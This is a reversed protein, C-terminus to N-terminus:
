REKGELYTKYSSIKMKNDVCVVYEMKGNGEDSGFAVPVACVCFGLLFCMYNSPNVYNGMWNRTAIGIGFTFFCFNRCFANTLRFFCQNQKIKYIMENVEESSEMEQDATYRNNNYIAM